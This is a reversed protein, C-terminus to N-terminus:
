LTLRAVFLAGFLWVYFSTQNLQRGPNIQMDAIFAAVIGM